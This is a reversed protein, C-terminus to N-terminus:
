KINDIKENFFGMTLNIVVVFLTFLLLELYFKTAALCGVAASCWITAATALGKVNEKERMIVGGGLFGVGIVVQGLVRTLDVSEMGRFELSIIVFVASGVAVLSYTKLGARKGKMKRELGMLAGGIVAIGLQLIFEGLHIDM